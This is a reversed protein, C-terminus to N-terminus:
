VNIKKEETSDTVSTITIKGFVKKDKPKAEEIMSELQSGMTSSVDDNNGMQKEPPRFFHRNPAYVVNSM